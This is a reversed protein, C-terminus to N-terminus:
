KRLQFHAVRDLGTLNTRLFDKAPLKNVRLDFPTRGAFRTALTDGRIPM